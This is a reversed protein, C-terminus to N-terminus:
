DSCRSCCCVYHYCWLVVALWDTLWERMWSSALLMIITFLNGCHLLGSQFSRALSWRCGFEGFFFEVDGFLFMAIGIGKKLSFSPWQPHTHSQFFRKRLRLRFILPQQKLLSFWAVLKTGGLVLITETLSYAFIKVTNLCLYWLNSAQLLTVKMNSKCVCMYVCLFPYRGLFQWIKNTENAGVLIQM